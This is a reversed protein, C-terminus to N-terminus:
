HPQPCDPDRPDYVVRWQGSSTRYGVITCIGDAAPGAYAKNLLSFNMNLIELEQAGGLVEKMKTKMDLRFLSFGAINPFKRTEEEFYKSSEELKKFVKVGCDRRKCEVWPTGDKGYIYPQGKTNVSIGFGFGGADPTPFKIVRESMASFKSCAALLLSFALSFVVVWKRRIFINIMNFVAGTRILLLYFLLSLFRSWNAKFVFDALLKTLLSSLCAQISSVWLM